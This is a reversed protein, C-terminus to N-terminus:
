QNLFHQFKFGHEIRLHMEFLSLADFGVMMVGDNRLEQYALDCYPNNMEKLDELCLFYNGVCSFVLKHIASENILRTVAKEDIQKKHKEMADAFSDSVIVGDVNVSKLYEKFNKLAKNGGVLNRDIFWLLQSHAESQNQRWLQMGIIFITFFSLIPTYLGGIASGMNAWDQNSDWIGFGFQYTYIGVPALVGGWFILVIVWHQWNYKM